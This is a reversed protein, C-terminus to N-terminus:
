FIFIEPNDEVKPKREHAPIFTSSRPEVPLSRHSRQHANPRRPVVALPTSPTRARRRRPVVSEPSPAFHPLLLLQAVAPSCCCPGADSHSCCFSSTSPTCCRRSLLAHACLLEPPLVCLRARFSLLARAPLPLPLPSPMM